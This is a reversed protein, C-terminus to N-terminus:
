TTVNGTARWPESRAEQATAREALELLVDAHCPQDLACWCALNKGALSTRVDGETVPLHRFWLKELYREVATPADITGGTRRDLIGVKVPNGWKTPRAVNVAPLGNTAQSLAQLSFGKRRSLQLRVPAVAPSRRRTM